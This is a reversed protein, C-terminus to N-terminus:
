QSPTAGGNTPPSALKAGATAVKLTNAELPTLKKPQIPKGTRPDIPVEPNLAADAQEKALLKTEEEEDFDDSLVGRRKLEAWYTEQSLDKAARSAQLTALETGAQFDVGFDTHVRVVVEDNRGMWRCTIIWAQELADKLGLAWAQVANHARMSVNATTVVTLNATALPQKGLDRMETRLKELDMQLFTLCQASPEIFEWRAASTGAGSMNPPAFLVTRPGIELELDKGADDKPRSVGQGALMPFATYEKITKLNSEQQFEEIQMYAIDKLPPKVRWSSGERKGTKFAVLPIIGITITGQDVLTWNQTETLKTDPNGQLEHLEWTAGLYNVVRGTAEDVVPERNFIRVSEVLKENFGDREIRPEYIRAHTIVEQGNIFDSYVALMQECPIRVWYPRTGMAREDALTLPRSVKNFDVLIWDIGKDIGAKFVEASFVHLNNSQGDINQALKKLDDATSEELELTKSFPKSSLNESVDSYINALPANQRRMDYADNRESPFQPLYPSMSGARGRRYANLQSLSAYPIAPGAVAGTGGIQLVSRLADVGHLITGVMKWYPAMARYDSSTTKPNPQEPLPKQAM